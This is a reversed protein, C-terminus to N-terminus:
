RPWITRTARPTRIVRIPSTTIPRSSADRDQASETRRSTPCAYEERLRRRAPNPFRARLAFQIRRARQRRFRPLGANLRDQRAQTGALPRAFIQRSRLLLARAAANGLPRPGQPGRRSLDPYSIAAVINFAFLAAAAFRTGCGLLLLVPLGLEAGTGLVAALAPPLLACPIRQPVAGAHHELRAAQHARVPLVRARRLHAARARLVAAPPRGVRGPELVRARRAAPVSMAASRM